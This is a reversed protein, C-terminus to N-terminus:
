GVRGLPLFLDDCTFIVALFYFASGRFVRLSDMAGDQNISSCLGGTGLFKALLLQADWSGHAPALLSCRCRVSEGHPSWCYRAPAPPARLTSLSGQCLPRLFRGELLVACAGVDEGCPVCAARATLFPYPRTKAVTVM